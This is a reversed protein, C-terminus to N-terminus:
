KQSDAPPPGGHSPAGPGGRMARHMHRTKKASELMKKYTANEPALEVCTELQGVAEDMRGRRLLVWAYAKRAEADKPRLAVAQRLHQLAEDWRRLKASLEGLRRHLEGNDPADQLQTKLAALEDQIAKKKKARTLWLQWQPDDPHAEQARTWFEIAIELHGAKYHAMAALGLPETADPKAAFLTQLDALATKWEARRAHIQARKLLADPDNPTEDLTANLKEMAQQDQRLNEAQALWGKLRRNTPDLEIAKKLHRIAKDYEARTAYARAALQHAAADKPKIEIAQNLWPLAQDVLGFQLYLQGLQLRPAWAEPDAEAEAQLAKIRDHIAKTAHGAGGPPHGPMTQGAPARAAILLLILCTRPLFRM